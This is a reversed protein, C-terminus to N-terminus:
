QVVFVRKTVAKALYALNPHEQLWENSNLSRPQLDIIEPNAIRDFIHLNPLNCIGPKLPILTYRLEIEQLPMLDIKCKVDGCVYFMYYTNDVLVLTEYIKDDCMNKIKYIVQVPSDVFLKNHELEHSGM